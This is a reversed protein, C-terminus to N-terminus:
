TSLRRVSALDGSCGYGMLLGTMLNVVAHRRAPNDLPMDAVAQRGAALAQALLATEGTQRYRVQLFVGLDSLLAAHTCTDAASGALAARLGAIAEDLVYEDAGQHADYTCTAVDDGGRM